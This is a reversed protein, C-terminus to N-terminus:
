HGRRYPKEKAFKAAKKANKATLLEEVNGTLSGAIVGMLLFKDNRASANHARARSAAAGGCFPGPAEVEVGVWGSFCRRLM